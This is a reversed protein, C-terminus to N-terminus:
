FLPAMFGQLELKSINKITLKNQFKLLEDTVKKILFNGVPYTFIHHLLLLLFLVMIKNYDSNLYRIM